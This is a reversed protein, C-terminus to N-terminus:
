CILVGEKPDKQLGTIQREVSERLHKSATKALKESLKRIGKKTTPINSHEKTVHVALCLSFTYILLDMSEKMSEKQDSSNNLLEVLLKLYPNNDMDSLYAPTVTDTDKLM